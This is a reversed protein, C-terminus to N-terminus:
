SVPQDLPVPTVAKWLPEDELAAVKTEDLIADALTQALNREAPPLRPLMTELLADFSWDGRSFGANMVSKLRGLAESGDLNGARDLLWRIFAAAAHIQRIQEGDLLTWARHAFERAQSDRGRIALVEAFSSINMIDNPDLELARRYLREAEDYNRRVDTMFSAFNGTNIVSNPDLELARRYLREAEDSDKRMDSMFSAFNGTHLAYSPDLELARRYLGEAEDYNKRVDTMFIAFNGTNIANNADLELARRYLHEARDYDNRVNKMFVAFNGTLEASEPFDEIGARYIAERKEPDPEAKAKLDWAWWGKEKTLREVAAEAAERVPARAEEAAPTEAPKKLTATLAEFQKQYDAVRKDHVSQLRPLLPELKLKEQLQLMLEDFGAIPVLKGKHREVVALIAREIQSGHRHCWFIGGEIPDLTALFNMLSGDNGGYGIVIPTFRSFIKKLAADWEGPLRSIEEPNSLPALLLDRHIKAILPRRMEPRIYGTLSEHGCVLPFTQTYISLADALLNDFNTTIAVKHSTTAMIQALVSYGFSPEAREMIKELAAYGHEKYEHFRRHYVWPYFNAARAYQFGDIGLNEATAWREIPIAEANEMEYMETLWQQVLLAGSPIRSQVSAGSGLIWCFPRDPMQEHRRGFESLFGLNTIARETMHISLHVLHHYQAHSQLDCLDALLQAVAPM